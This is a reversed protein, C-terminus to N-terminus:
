FWGRALLRMYGGGGGKIIVFNFELFFYGEWIVCLEVLFLTWILKNTRLLVRPFRLLNFCFEGKECCKGDFGPMCVCAGGNPTGRNSCFRNCPMDQELAQLCPRGCSPPRVVSRTRWKVGNSGCPASCPGWHSWSGVVCPRCFPLFRSPERFGYCANLPLVLFVVFWQRTDM